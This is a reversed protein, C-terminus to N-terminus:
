TYSCICCTKINQNYKDFWYSESLITKIGTSFWHSFHIKFLNLSNYTIQENNLGLIGLTWWITLNCTSFRAINTQGNQPCYALSPSNLILNYKWQTSTDTNPTKRTQIKGCEFQIHLSVSYRETKLGFASFCPGSFSRSHVSKVCHKYDFKISM